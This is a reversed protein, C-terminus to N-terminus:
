SHNSAVWVASTLNGQLVMPHHKLFISGDIEPVTINKSIIM